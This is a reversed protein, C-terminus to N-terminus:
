YGEQLSGDQNLSTEWATEPLKAIAAEDEDTIKWDVSVRVARHQAGTPSTSPM